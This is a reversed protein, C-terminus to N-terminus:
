FDKYCGIGDACDFFQYDISKSIKAKEDTRMAEEVVGKQYKAGEKNIQYLAKNLPTSQHQELALTMEIQDKLVRTKRIADNQRRSPLHPNTTLKASAFDLTKGMDDSFVTMAISESLKKCAVERKAHPLYTLSLITQRDILHHDAGESIKDLDNDSILNNLDTRYGGQAIVKGVLDNCLSKQSNEKLQNLYTRPTLQVKHPGYDLSIQGRKIVTDGIFAKTLNVFRQAKENKLGAWKATSGILRNEVTNGDGAWDSLDFGTSNKCSEMAKEFNGGSSQNARRVCQARQEDFESVKSDTYSDIAKCQDMRLQALFDSRVRSHKLISCWTPSFYCTLLMPSASLISSGMDGLYKADLINKLASQLTNKVSLNGCDGGSVGLDVSLDVTRAEDFIRDRSRGHTGFLYDSPRLRGVSRYDLDGVASIACVPIWISSLMLFQKFM